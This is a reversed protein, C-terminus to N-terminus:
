YPPIVNASGSMVISGSKMSNRKMLPSKKNKIFLLEQNKQNELEIKAICHVKNLKRIIKKLSRIFSHLPKKVNIEGWSSIIKQLRIKSSLQYMFNPNMGIIYQCIQIWKRLLFCVSDSHNQLILHHKFFQTFIKNQIKNNM